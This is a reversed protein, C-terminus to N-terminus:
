SENSNVNRALLSLREALETLPFLEVDAIDDVLGRMLSPTTPDGYDFPDDMALILRVFLWM